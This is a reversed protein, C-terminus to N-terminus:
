SKNQSGLEASRATAASVAAGVAARLGASELAQTGAITTGGPSEVRNRLEAPHTNPDEVVMKASGFVVQASLKRAIPRPIGANVGADALAEIFMYVYGPGSGSLGTVADMLREPVQLVVGVNSLIAETCERDEEDCHSNLCYATAAEAVLCPTNPMARVARVPYGAPSLAKVLSELTVGACISVLLKEPAWYDVCSALASRFSDPKTALIVIDSNGLLSEVSEVVNVGLMMSELASRRPPFIDYISLSSAPLADSALLARCIAEAMVGGGLFGVRYDPPLAHAM